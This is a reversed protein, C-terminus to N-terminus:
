VAVPLVYPVSTWLLVTEITRGPYIKEMLLKYARLQHRYVDPVESEHQAPPRNTKYDLIVVREPTVLLRDIQGNVAHEKGNITVEGVVPIEARALPSFLEAFRMDNVIAMVEHSILDRENDNLAERALIKDLV